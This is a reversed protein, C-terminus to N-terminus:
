NKYLNQFYLNTQPCIAQSYLLTLGIGVDRENFRVKIEQCHFNVSEYIKARRTKM